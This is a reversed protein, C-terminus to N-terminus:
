FIGSKEKRSFRRAAYIFIIKNKRKPPKNKNLISCLRPNWNWLIIKSALCNSGELIDENIMGERIKAEEIGRFIM